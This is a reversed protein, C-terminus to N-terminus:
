LQQINFQQHMVHGTSKLLKLVPSFKIKTEELLTFTANESSGSTPVFFTEGLSATWFQVSTSTRPYYAKSIHLRPLYIKQLSSFLQTKKAADLYKLQPQKELHRDKQTSVSHLIALNM